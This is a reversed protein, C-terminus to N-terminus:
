RASAGRPGTAAAVVRKHAVSGQCVVAMGMEVLRLRADVGGILRRPVLKSHMPPRTDIKM